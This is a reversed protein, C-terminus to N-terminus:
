LYFPTGTPICIMLKNALREVSLEYQRNDSCILFARGKDKDLKILTVDNRDDSFKLTKGEDIKELTRYQGLNLKFEYDLILITAM